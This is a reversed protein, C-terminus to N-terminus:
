RMSMKASSKLEIEPPEKLREIFTVEPLFTSATSGQELDTALTDFVPTVRVELSQIRPSCTREAGDGRTMLKAESFVAFSCNELHEPSEIKNIFQSGSQVQHKKEFLIGLQASLAVVPIFILFCM